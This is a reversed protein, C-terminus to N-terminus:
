EFLHPQDRWPAGDHHRHPRPYRVYPCPNRHQYPGRCRELVPEVGLGGVGAVAQCAVCGEFVTWESRVVEVGVGDEVWIRVVFVLFEEMGAEAVWREVVELYEQWEVGESLGLRQGGVGM